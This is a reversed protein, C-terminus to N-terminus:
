RALMTERAKTKKRLYCAKITAETKRKELTTRVKNHMNEMIAIIIQKQKRKKKAKVKREM